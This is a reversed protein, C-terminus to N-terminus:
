DRSLLCIGKIESPLYHKRRELSQSFYPLIFLFLPFDIGDEDMKRDPTSFQNEKELTVGALIFDNM